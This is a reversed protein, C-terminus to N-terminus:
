TKCQFPLRQDCTCTTFGPPVVAPCTLESWATRHPDARLQLATPSTFSSAVATVEDFRKTLSELKVNGGSM